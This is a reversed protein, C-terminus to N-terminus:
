SLVLLVFLSMMTKCNVEKHLTHEKVIIEFAMWMFFNHKISWIDSYIM